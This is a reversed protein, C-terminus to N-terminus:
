TTGSRAAAFPWQLQYRPPGHQRKLFRRLAWGGVVSAAAIVGIGVPSSM